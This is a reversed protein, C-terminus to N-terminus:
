SCSLAHGFNFNKLRLTLGGPVSCFVFRASLRFNSFIAWFDFIAWPGFHFFPGLIAVFQFIVWGMTESKKPCKKLKLGHAMKQKEPLEEGNRSPGNEMRHWASQSAITPGKASPTTHPATNERVFFNPGSDRAAETM